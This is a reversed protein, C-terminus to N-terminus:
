GEFYSKLKEFFTKRQPSVNVEETEALKRLLEEQKKTLKRPVEVAVRVIQNGRRGTRLNKIGKGKMTILAGSQTGKKVKLIEKGDITPVEIEAGLAAQTFTIPVELLVHEDQREFFEHERIRVVCYLDGPPAGREGPEGEGAMRLRMGDDIGEPIRVQCERTRPVRGRGRCEPCHEAIVEGQGRCKPCTSQVQFFGASQMIAGRGGCLDCSVPRTGKKAGSGHCELCPEQREFTVTKTCGKAAELFDVELEMQLDAGARPGRRRGRGGGFMDGFLGGGFIDGFAEFISEYSGAHVGGGLGAHGYRDYRARKEEDSLVEYAETAERFKAEAEPDDPNRDPHYQMALKRYAKKLTVADATREVGLVEYYDRKSVTSGM